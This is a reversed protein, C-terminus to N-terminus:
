PTAFIRKLPDRLDARVNLDYQGSQIVRAILQCYAVPDGQGAVAKEIDALAQRDAEPRATDSVGVKTALTRVMALLGANRDLWGQGAAQFAPDPDVAGYCYAMVEVPYLASDLVTAIDAPDPAASRSASAVAPAAM